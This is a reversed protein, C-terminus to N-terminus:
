APELQAATVEVVASQGLTSVSLYMRCRQGHRLVVGELGRLPGSKVRCRQGEKLAPFLELAQGREVVRYIQRLERRFADQEVVELVAAVRHTGRALECAEPGGSVFVYGAFLPVLFTARRKAYTHEVRALPLYHVIGAQELAEAVRKENRARTHLVHWPDAVREIWEGSRDTRRLAFSVAYADAPPAGPSSAAGVVVTASSAAGPTDRFSGDAM